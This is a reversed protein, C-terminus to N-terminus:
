NIIDLEFHLNVVQDDKGIKITNIRIDLENNRPATRSYSIELEDRYFERRPRERNERIVQFALDRARLSHYIADRYSEIKYLQRAKQQHAIARSLGYYYHRRKAAQQADYIILATRHIIYGADKKVKRHGPADYSKGPGDKFKGPKAFTSIQCSVLLAVLLLGILLKKM